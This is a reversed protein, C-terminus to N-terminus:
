KRRPRGLRGRRHDRQVRELECVCQLRCPLDGRRRGRRRIERLGRQDAAAQLMDVVMQKKAEGLNELEGTIGAQEAAAVFQEALVLLWELDRAAIEAKAKAIWSRIWVALFGLVVPLFIALMTELFPQLLNALIDM